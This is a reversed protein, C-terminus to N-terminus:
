KQRETEIEKEGYSNHTDTESMFNDKNVTKEFCM